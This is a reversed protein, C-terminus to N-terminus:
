LLGLLDEIINGGVGQLTNSYNMLTWDSTNNTSEKPHVFQLATRITQNFFPTTNVVEIVSHENYVVQYVEQPACTIPMPVGLYNGLTRQDFFVRNTMLLFASDSILSFMFASQAVMDIFRTFYLITFPFEDKNAIAVSVALFGKLENFAASVQQLAPTIGIGMVQSLNVSEYTATVPSPSVDLFDPIGGESYPAFSYDVPVSLSNIQQLLLILSDFAGLNDLFQGEQNTYVNASTNGYVSLLPLTVFLYGGLGKGKKFSKLVGISGLYESVSTPVALNFTDSYPTLNVGATLVTQQLCTKFMWGSWGEQTFRTLAVILVYRLFQPETISKFVSTPVGSVPVITPTLSTEQSTNYLDAELLQVLMFTMFEELSVSKFRLITKYTEGDVVNYEMLHSAYHHPGKYDNEVHIGTRTNTEVSFPVLGLFRTWYQKNPVIEEIISAVWGLNAEYSLDIPQSFLGVNEEYGTEVTPYILDLPIRKSLSTWINQIIAPAQDYVTADTLVVIGNRTFDYLYQMDNWQAPPVLVETGIPWSLSAFGVNPYLINLLGGSGFCSSYQQWTFATGGRTKPMFADRLEKYKRPMISFMSTAGTTALYLDYAIGSFMVYISGVGGPTAGTDPAYGDVISNPVSNKVAFLAWVAAVNIFDPVSIPCTVNIVSLQPVSTSPDVHSVVGLVNQNNKDTSVSKMNRKDRRSGGGRSRGRKVGRGKMQRTSM